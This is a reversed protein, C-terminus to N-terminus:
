LVVHIQQKPSHLSIGALRLPYKRALSKHCFSAPTMPGGMPLPIKSAEKNTGETSEKNTNSSFGAKIREFLSPTKSDPQKNKDVLNGANSRLGSTLILRKSLLNTMPAQNLNLKPVLRSSRASVCFGSKSRSLSPESQQGSRNLRIYRLRNSLTEAPAVSSKELRISQLDIKPIGLPTLGPQRSSTQRGTMLSDPLDLRASSRGANSETNIPFYQQQEQIDSQLIDINRFLPSEKRDMSEWEFSYDDKFTIGAQLLKIVIGYAPREKFNLQRSYRLLIAFLDPLGETIVEVPTLRKSELIREFATKKMDASIRFDLQEWPLKGKSIWILVYFLSELDDRRSLESELHSNISAYRATGLLGKRSKSLIHEYGEFSEVRQTSLATEAQKIYNRSVGFDVLFAQKLGSSDGILINAPKLDCHIVGADHVSELCRVLQVGIRCASEASVPGTRSIIDALSPGLLELTFGWHHEGFQYVKGLRPIGPQNQLLKLFEVENKQQKVVSPPPQLKKSGFAKLAYRKGSQLDVCRYVVGYSGEGIARELELDDGAHKSIIEDMRVPKPQTKAKDEM